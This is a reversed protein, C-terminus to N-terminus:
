SDSGVQTPLQALVKQSEDILVLFLRSAEHEDGALVLSVLGEKDVKKVSAVVSEGSPRELRLDASVEGGRITAEIFCRLGRWTLSNITATVATEGGREVLIDPILCEQISLGGHTYEESKNFCAIGPPTAFSQTSNWYWPVRKVDPTSEGAIVACRAWRSETLHKPLDVKPLGGPLLLWGHDTVIRVGAWGAELLSIVRNALRDLEEPIQRALRAGLKHGLSDIEGTECWGRAPQSEPWDAKEPGLVQYGSDTLSARLNQVTAPKGTGSMQPTFTENLAKGSVKGAIPTVAPKATATVTPLAAWRHDVTVRCGRGELREALRRGLDYRLGDAFLVCFDDSSKIQAQEGRSPLAKREIAAQFVRASDELWPRLLHQVVQKILPEDSSPTQALVQWTAADAQWGREMYTTAIQDPEMGGLASRTAESLRSLPELLGAMPSQRLRAWVWERRKGHRNELQEIVDCAEKHKLDKIKTLSVRVGDEEQENVHPWRDVDIPLAGSPRSRRLLGAIDGYSNPAEVFREWVKEWPGEGRGLLEGATVDAEVAPDFDFQDRSRSCFAGWPAEGLRAKTGAPDVMWRLLDRVVDGSLMRDFDESDLRRGSLQSIPTVVVEPLARQLAELTANDRAIDLGLANVSTLFSTVGWDTGNQQLWLTGRFMLEVLPRLEPRCDEGARLEQRAVGPLYVIPARDGPLVPAQLTQDVLCRIWIAPGIRSEPAFNGLVLLEEVQTQLAEIVPQWEAKPDTWLIAAPREQGDLAIDRARLQEILHDLVNGVASQTPASPTM